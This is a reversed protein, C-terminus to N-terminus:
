FVSEPAADKLAHEHEQHSGLLPDLNGDAHFRFPELEGVVDFREPNARALALLPESIQLDVLELTNRIRVIKTDLPKVRVVTKVALAIADHDTNMIMPICAGDLFASAIVNAYSTPVDLEKYLRMTTVHTEPTLGLVVIKKVLPKAVWETFRLNRGTVNPDMGSGSINKGIQEVILVDIEDFNIRAMLEKAKAQLVPEREFVHEGLVAEIIATNEHANEVMAVGMLINKKSMTFKAVRPLVEGFKDMGQTHLETAGTIKGMGITM